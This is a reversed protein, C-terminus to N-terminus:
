ARDALWECVLGETSWGALFELARAPVVDAPHSALLRECAGAFDGGGLFHDLLAAEDGTLSRFQTVQSADRWCLWESTEGRQGRPPAPRDALALWLIVADTALSLRRVSPSLRLRLGPWDSPPVAQLQAWTALPAAPADFCDLLTREFRALEAFEPEGDFSPHAALFAPLADGFYRLSHHRSPHADLYAVCLADWRADGLATALRAHDKGLVERLRAQYAHRYIGLGLGVDIGGDARLETDLGDASRTIAALFRQQLGALDNM